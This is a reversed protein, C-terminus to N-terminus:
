HDSLHSRSLATRQNGGLTRGNRNDITAARKKPRIVLDNNPNGALSVASVHCQTCTLELFVHLLVGILLEHIM